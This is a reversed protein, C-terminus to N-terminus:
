SVLYDQWAKKFEEFGYCVAAFCGRADAAELFDRQDKSLRSKTADCRKLEFLGARWRYTGGLHIIDPVGAKVGEKARIAYHFANGASENPVHFTLAYHDPYNHALWSIADIQEAREARCPGRYYSDYTRIM